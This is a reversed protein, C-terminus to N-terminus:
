NTQNSADVDTPAKAMCATPKEVSRLPVGRVVNVIATKSEGLLDRFLEATRACYVDRNESLRMSAANASRTVHTDLARQGGSHKRFYEKLRGGARGLETEHLAVFSNYAARQGCALGAVMLRSQLDRIIFADVDTVRACGSDEAHSPYTVTVAMIAALGVIKGTIRKPMQLGLLFM